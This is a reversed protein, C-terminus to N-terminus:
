ERQRDRLGRVKNLIRPGYVVAFDRLLILLICFACVGMGVRQVTYDGFLAVSTFGALILLAAAHIAWWVLPSYTRQRVISEWYARLVRGLGKRM